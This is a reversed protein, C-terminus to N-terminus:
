PGLVTMVGGNLSYVRGNGDITLPTYAAGVSEELFVHTKEVGGQEIAYVRGDESNAYVVGNPDVAPANVCWEFGDPNSDYCAQGGDSLTDCRQPSCTVGGDDARFCNQTNTSEFRWEPFLNVDLQTMDYPGDLSSNYNFYHNDKTVISYTGDHSWVAPTDDWGFDYSTIFQGTSSFKMLHGRDNNYYTLAGYLVSGDPLVVPSSSSSDDALGVPPKNTAPDVGVITGIRCHTLRQGGGDDLNGSSDVDSPVSVGCGDDLHGGLSATWKPTLDDNVAVLYGAREAGHARSVVFITGDAGIAPAANMTPRQELCSAQKTPEPNGADDVPPWPLADTAYSFGIDCLDTSAPAGPTLDQFSAKEVHGQADSRVLWGNAVSFPNPTGVQLVTFLVRGKSDVTLPSVVFRTPDLETGGDGLAFPDIRLTEADTKRDIVHVTGGAGPMFLFDNSIAAAFVPEFSTFVDSPPKWDSPLETVKVLAGSKWQYHVESWTQLEWRDHGCAGGDSLAGSGPPSCSLWTGGKQEMYVDDGLALPSSYHAVLDGEPSDAQELPANPDFTVQALVNQLPAAAVCAQGTHAPNQGWQTWGCATNPQGADSGADPSTSGSAHCAGLAIVAVLACLTRNM